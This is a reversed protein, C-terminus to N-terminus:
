GGPRGAKIFRKEIEALTKALVDLLERQQQCNVGCGEVDDLFPMADHIDRQAQAIRGKLEASFEVTHPM